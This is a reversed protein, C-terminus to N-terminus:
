VLIFIKERKLKKKIKNQCAIALVAGSKIEIIRAHSKENKSITYTKISVVKIKMKVIYSFVKCHNTESNIYLFM